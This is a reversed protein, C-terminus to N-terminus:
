GRWATVAGELTTFLREQMVDTTYDLHATDALSSPSGEFFGQLALLDFNDLSVRLVRGRAANELEYVSGQGAPGVVVIRRGSAIYQPVKTSVSLRTYAAISDESSEVFLLASSSRLVSPVQDTSLSDAWDVLEGGPLAAAAPHPGEPSHVRIRVGSSSIRQALDTIVRGRGLHLGGVYVLRNTEPPATGGPQAFSSLDVANGVVAVPRGLTQRYEEAMLTGIGMAVPSRALVEECLSEVLRRARGGLEGSTYLTSIWDDMFHPVIPIDLTRSTAIALRLMRGNGLLTHIVQPRRASIARVTAGPLRVPALDAAVRLDRFVRERMSLGTRRISDNLGDGPAPARSRLRQLALYPARLAMGIPAVHAPIAIVEGLTPAESSRYVWQTLREPDSNGYLSMLTQGTANPHGIPYSGIYLVRPPTM